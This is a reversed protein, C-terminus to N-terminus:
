AAIARGSLREEAELGCDWQSSVCKREFRESSTRLPFGEFFRGSREKRRARALFLKRTIRIQGAVHPSENIVLFVLLSCCRAIRHDETSSYFM